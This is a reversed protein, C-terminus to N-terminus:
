FWKDSLNCRLKNLGASRTPNYVVFGYFFETKLLKTSKTKGEIEIDETLTILFECFDISKVLIKDLHDATHKPM